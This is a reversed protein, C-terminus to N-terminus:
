FSGVLCAIHCCEFGEKVCCRAGSCQSAKPYMHVFYISLRCSFNCDKMKVLLISPPASKVGFAHIRGQFTSNTASYANAAKQATMHELEVGEYPKCLQEENWTKQQKPTCLSHLFTSSFSLSPVCIMLSKLPLQPTVSQM